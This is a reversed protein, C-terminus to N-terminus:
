RAPAGTVAAAKANAGVTLNELLDLYRRALVRRDFHESVYQRGAKGMRARLAPDHKLQRVAAAIEQPDEPTVVVAASSDRLIRASEGAVSGVIPRACAMIEFIKSPIFREFIPARRLPVLVVDAAAYWTNMM